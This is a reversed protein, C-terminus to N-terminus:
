RGTEGAGRYDGLPMIAIYLDRIIIIIIIIIILPVFGSGCLGM